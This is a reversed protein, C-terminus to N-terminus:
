ESVVLKKVQHEGSALNILKVFYIGKTLGEIETQNTNYIQINKLIRGTNDALQLQVQDSIDSLTIRTRGKSPNPAISFDPVATKGKVTRTESYNFKGDADTIKLRYQAAQNGITNDTFLYNHEGPTNSATVTGITVFENNIKKEIAYNRTGSEQATKWALLATNNKRTGEFNVLQVPLIGGSSFCLKVSALDSNGLQDTIRYTFDFITKTFDTRTFTFSGNPNIVLTGGGVTSSGNAYPGNALSYTVNAGAYKLDNLSLDDSVANQNIANTSVSNCYSDNLADISCNDCTLECRRFNDILYKTGNQICNGIGSKPKFAIEITYITGAPLNNGVNFSVDVAPSNLPGNNPLVMDSIATFTTSGVHYFVDISTPCDFDKWTNCQLNSRLVFIDFGLQIVKAGNSTFAPTVLNAPNNGGVGPTIIGRDNGCASGPSNYSGESAGQSYSWGYSQVNFNETICFQTLQARSQEACLMAMM